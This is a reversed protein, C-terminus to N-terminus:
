PMEEENLCGAALLTYGRRRSNASLEKACDHEPLYHLERCVEIKGLLFCGGCIDGMPPRAEPTLIPILRIGLAYKIM